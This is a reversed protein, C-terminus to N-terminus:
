RFSRHLLRRCLLTFHIELISKVGLMGAGGFIAILAFFIGTSSQDNLQFTSTIVIALLLGMGAGIFLLANKLTISPNAQRRQKKHEAPNMGKEIMSLNEKSELYRIAVVMIFAAIPVAFVVVGPEM